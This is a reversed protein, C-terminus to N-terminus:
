KGTTLNREIETATTSVDPGQGLLQDHALDLLDFCDFPQLTAVDEMMLNIHVRSSYHKFVKLTPNWLWYM